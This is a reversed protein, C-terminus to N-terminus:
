SALSFLSFTLGTCTVFRHQHHANKRGGDGCRRRTGSDDGEADWTVVHTLHPTKSLLARALLFLSIFLSICRSFAFCYLKLAFHQARM